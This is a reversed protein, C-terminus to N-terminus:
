ADEKTISVIPCDNNVILGSELENDNEDRFVGEYDQTYCPGGFQCYRVSGGTWEGYRDRDDESVFFPCQNCYKPKSELNNLDCLDNFKIVTM